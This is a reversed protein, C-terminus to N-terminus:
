TRRTTRCSSSPRRMAWPSRRRWPTYCGQPGCGARPTGTKGVDAIWAQYSYVSAEDDDTVVVALMEGPATASWMPDEGDWVLAVGTDDAHANKRQLAVIEDRARGALIAANAPEGDRLSAARSQGSRQRDPQVSVVPM